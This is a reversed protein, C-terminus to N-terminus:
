SLTSCAGTSLPQAMCIAPGQWIGVASYLALCQLTKSPLASSAHRETDFDSPSTQMILHRGQLSREM